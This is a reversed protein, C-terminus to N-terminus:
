LMDGLIPILGSGVSSSIRLTSNPASSGIACSFAGGTCFADWLAEHAIGAIFDESIM